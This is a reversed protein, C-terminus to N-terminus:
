HVCEYGRNWSDNRRVLHPGKRVEQRVKGGVCWVPLSAGEPLSGVLKRERFSLKIM